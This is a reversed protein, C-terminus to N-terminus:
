RERFSIGGYADSYKIEREKEDIVPKIDKLVELIEAWKPNDRLMSKDRARNMLLDYEMRVEKLDAIDTCRAIANYYDKQVSRATPLLKPLNIRLYKAFAIAPYGMGMSM